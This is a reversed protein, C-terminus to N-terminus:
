HGGPLFVESHQLICALTIKSVHDPYHDSYTKADVNPAFVTRTIDGSVPADANGSFM